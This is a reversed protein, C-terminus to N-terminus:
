PFQGMSKALATWNNLIYTYIEQDTATTFARGHVDAQVGNLNAGVLRSLRKGAFDPERMVNSVFRLRIEHEQASDPEALIVDTVDMTAILVRAMFNPDGSLMARHTYTGATFPPVPENPLQPTPAPPANLPMFPAVIAPTQTVPVTKVQTPNPKPEDAVPPPLTTPKGGIPGPTSPPVPTTSSQKPKATDQVPKQQAEVSTVMLVLVCLIKKM